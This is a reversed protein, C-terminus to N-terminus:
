AKRQEPPLWQTWLTQEPSVIASYLSRVLSLRVQDQSLHRLAGDDDGDGENDYGGDDGCNGQPLNM